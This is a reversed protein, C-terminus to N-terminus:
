VPRRGTPRIKKPILCSLEAKRIRYIQARSVGTEKQLTNVHMNVLLQPSIKGSDSFVMKKLFRWLFESLLEKFLSFFLAKYKVDISYNKIQRLLNQM